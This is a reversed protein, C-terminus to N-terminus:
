ALHDESLIEGAPVRRRTTRGVLIDLAGPPLGSGPRLAVLDDAVVTHGAPLERAAHLSRRVLTANAAEAPAPVKRGSGRCAEVTRVEAILTRLEAPELSAAHDPGPLSRDTTFHKELMDAGMGAAALSVTGGMTHDSWGVPVGFASRMTDMARLNCDAPDAPYDTVCHFLALPPNGHRRITDVAESVEMMTSMGTSVLLPLRRAALRALFPLNTLEGSPVKLAAVGLEVLYDASPEDFPTSLFLLGCDAAHRALSAFEQRPLALRRLMERQSEGSGSAAIQYDAKPAGASVVLDPDFTQFKVADAGADAAVDVLRHALAPDGNHNVGAEAIVCCRHAPGVVRSGLSVTPIPQQRLLSEALALDHPHDVDVAREQPLVVGQTIGPLIFERRERLLGSAILYVAGSPRYTPACDQRRRPGGDPAAWELSGDGHLRMAIQLPHSTEVVSIISPRLAPDFRQRCEAIDGATRLPSTPQLLLVADFAGGSAELRDLLALTSEVVSTTDGALQAPRLFPVAAGWARGEAAIAEADTDVVVRAGPLESQHIFTRAALVARGVLSIGGVERLNKNVVGKSGGRAPIVCILRM